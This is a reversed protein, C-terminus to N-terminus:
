MKLCDIPFAKENIKKKNNEQSLEIQQKIGYTSTFFLTYYFFIISYEATTIHLLCRNISIKNQICREFCFLNQLKKNPFARFVLGSGVKISIHPM